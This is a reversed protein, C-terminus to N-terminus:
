REPAWWPWSCRLCSSFHRSFTSSTCLPLEVHGASVVAPTLMKDVILGFVKPLAVDIAMVVLMALYGAALLRTHKRVLKLWHILVKRSQPSAVNESDATSSRNM